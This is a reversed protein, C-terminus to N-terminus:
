TNPPPSLGAEEAFMEGQLPSESSIWVKLAETAMLQISGKPAGLVRELVDGYAEYLTEVQRLNESQKVEESILMQGSAYALDYMLNITV